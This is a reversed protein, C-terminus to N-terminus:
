PGLPRKSYHKRIIPFNLEPDQVYLDTHHCHFSLMGTTEIEICNGTRRQQPFINQAPNGGRRNYEELYGSLVSVNSVGPGPPHPFDANESLFHVLSLWVNWPAGEPVASPGPAATCTLAWSGDFILSRRGPKGSTGSAGVRM